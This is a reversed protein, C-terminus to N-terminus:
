FALGKPTLLDYINYPVIKVNNPYFLEKYFNFCPLQMTTFSISYYTKDFRKDYSTKAYPIYNEICFVNFIELVHNFYTKRKIATQAYILRSNGTPSRREIHGDGLLIGILM